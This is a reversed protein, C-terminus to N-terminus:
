FYYETKHNNYYYKNNTETKSTKLTASVGYRTKDPVVVTVAATVTEGVDSRDSALEVETTWDAVLEDTETWDSVLEDM